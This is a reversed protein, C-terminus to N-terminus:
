ETSELIIGTPEVTLLKTTLHENSLLLIGLAVSTISLKGM